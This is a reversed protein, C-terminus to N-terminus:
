HATPSTGAAVSFSDDPFDVGTGQTLDTVSGWEVLVPAAYKRKRPQGPLEHAPAESPGVFPGDVPGNKNM